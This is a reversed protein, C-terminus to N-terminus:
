SELIGEEDRVPWLLFTRMEAHKDPVGFGCRGGGSGSLLSESVGEGEARLEAGASERGMGGSDGSCNLRGLLVRKQRHTHSWVCVDPTTDYAPESSGANAAPKALLFGKKRGHQAM